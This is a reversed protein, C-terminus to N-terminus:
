VLKMVEVRESRVEVDGPRNEQMSGREIRPRFVELLRHLLHHRFRNVVLPAQRNLLVLLRALDDLRGAALDDFESAGLMVGKDGGHLRQEGVRAPKIAVFHELQHRSSLWYSLM